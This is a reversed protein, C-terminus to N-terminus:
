RDQFQHHVIPTRSPCLKHPNLRDHLLLGRRCVSHSMLVTEVTAQWRWQYRLAALNRPAHAVLALPWPLKMTTLVNSGQSQSQLAARLHRLQVRIHYPQVPRRSQYVGGDLRNLPRPNRRFDELTMGRRPTPPTIQITMGSSSSQEPDEKNVVKEAKSAIVHEEMGFWLELNNRYSADDSFDSRDKHWYEPSWAGRHRRQPHALDKEVEPAGSGIEVIEVKRWYDDPQHLRSSRAPPETPVEVFKPQPRFDFCFGRSQGRNENASRRGHSRPQTTRSPLQPAFPNTRRQHDDANDSKDGSHRVHIFRLDIANEPQPVLLPEIRTDYFKREGIIIRGPSQRPYHRTGSRNMYTVDALSGDDLELFFRVRLGDGSLLEDGILRQRIRQARASHSVWVQGPVQGDIRISIEHVLVKQTKNALIQDRRSNTNRFIYAGDSTEFCSLEPSTRPSSSDSKVSSKASSESAEPIRAASIGEKHITPPPETSLHSQPVSAEVNTKPSSVLPLSQDVM